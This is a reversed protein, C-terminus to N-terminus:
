SAAIIVASIRAEIPGDGFRRRIAATAAETARELGGSDRAEIENRLPTGQVYAIAPVEPGAALSVDDRQTLSCRNFGASKVDGEIEAPIGHGHPTRALFLPPDDPYLACLANTVVDAFENHEIGNWISFLFTGGPRLVRHIERYAAARDPFFMCSFQCVVVDFTEDAYPLEMVDAQRWTVPRSTGVRKAHAVMAENLDTATLACTEPLFSALARTVVGTGCAVELVSTPDLARTRLALDDAYTEFILPVLTSQYFAAVGETFSSDSTPKTMLARLDSANVAGAPRTARALPPAIWRPVPGHLAEDYERHMPPPCSRPEAALFRRRDLMRRDRSSTARFRM